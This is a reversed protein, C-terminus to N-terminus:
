QPPKQAEFATMERVIAEYIRLLHENPLPGRNAATVRQLVDAVRAPDNVAAGSQQKLRGIERVVTARENLLAVLRRDVADIKEREASLRPDTQPGSATTFTVGLLVAFVACRM